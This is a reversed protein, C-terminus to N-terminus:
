STSYFLVRYTDTQRFGLNYFDLPFSLSAILPSRDARGKRTKEKKKGKKPAFEPILTALPVTDDGDALSGPELKTKPLAGNAFYRSAITRELNDPNDFLAHAKNSFTHVSPQSRQLM